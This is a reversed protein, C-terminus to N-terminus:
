WGMVKKRLECFLTGALPKTLMDAQQDESAIKQVKIRGKTVYSRFHHLKNNIHKTRPRYKDSKAIEIAGSNDEFVTCQVPVAHNIVDFGASNLERIIRMLPITSRLAQSMGIYEAETTSLATETQLQSKWTVPCGAYSIIYGHRSRATDPDDSDDPTWNGAFDADVHVELGKSRNPRLILGKDRTGKLYRAIYRIANGHERKPDVSFRACQHTIYSIDPRSGTELYGLRGIISRYHFSGDFKESERHRTLIKTSLAPTDKTGLNGIDMKLDNLIQDILQPQCLEVTGDSKLDINIGLFDQIDGEDTIKLKAAKIEEMISEIENKDPGMLISDDTYVVYATKGKWFLCPDIKSQTFGVEHVLKERLYEFWVRGAQRQGYINKHVKLVHEKPNGNTFEIGAPIKMYMEREVPAQPYAQM